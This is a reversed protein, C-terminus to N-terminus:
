RGHGKRDSCAPDRGRPRVRAYIGNLLEQIHLRRPPATGRGKLAEKM